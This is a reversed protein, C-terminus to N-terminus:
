YEYIMNPSLRALRASSIVQNNYPWSVIMLTGAMESGFGIAFWKDSSPARITILLDPNGSAIHATPVTLAVCVLEPSCYQSQALVSTVLSLRQRSFPNLRSLFVGLLTLLLRM